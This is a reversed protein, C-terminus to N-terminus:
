TGAAATPRSRTISWKPGWGMPVPSGDADSVRSQRHRQDPPVVQCGYYPAVRIGSLPRKVKARIAEEGVDTCLIDLLNRVRVRGPDYHLGGAALCENVQRRADRARGDAQRDEQPEFLVRCLPGCAPRFQPGVLALNRAIVACATLEDQSFYETAGCCNWDDLEQLAIGLAQAVARVSVDYAPATSKWALLRPLLRVERADELERAKQIIAQLQAINKIKTPFVSMRGRSMMGMGM